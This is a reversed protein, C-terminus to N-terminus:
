LTLPLCPQPISMTKNKMQPIQCAPLNSTPFILKTLKYFMEVHAIKWNSQFIKIKTQIQDSAHSGSPMEDQM